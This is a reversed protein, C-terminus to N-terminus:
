YEQSSFGISPPAQYAVTWPTSFLQVHSLSKVKRQRKKYISFIHLLQKSLEPFSIKCCVKKQKQKDPLVKLSSYINMVEAQILWIMAKM